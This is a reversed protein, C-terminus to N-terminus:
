RDTVFILITFEADIDGDTLTIYSICSDDFCCYVNFLHRRIADASGSVSRRIAVNHFQFSGVSFSILRILTSVHLPVGSYHLM